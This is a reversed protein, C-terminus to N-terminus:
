KENKNLEQRIKATFQKWPEIRNGDTDFNKYEYEIWFDELNYKGYPRIEVM